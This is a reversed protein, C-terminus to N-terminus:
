NNQRLFKNGKKPSITDQNNDTKARMSKTAKHTASDTNQITDKMSMSSKPNKTGKADQACIIGFSLLFM